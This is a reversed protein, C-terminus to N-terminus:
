EKWRQSKVEWQAWHCQYPGTHGQRATPLGSSLFDDNFSSLLWDYLSGSSSCLFFSRCICLVKLLFSHSQKPSPHFGILNYHVSPQPTTYVNYLFIYSVSLLTLEHLFKYEMIHCKSIQTSHFASSHNLYRPIHDFINELSRKTQQTSFPYTPHPSFLSLVVGTLLHDSLLPSPCLMPECCAPSLRQHILHESLLFWLM